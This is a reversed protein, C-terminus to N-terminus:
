NNSLVYLIKDAPFFVWRHTNTNPSLRVLAKIWIGSGCELSIEEGCVMSGWINLVDTAEPNLYLIWKGCPPDAPPPAQAFAYSAFVLLAGALLMVIFRKM